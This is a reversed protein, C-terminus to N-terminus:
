RVGVTMRVKGIGVCDYEMVIMKDFPKQNNAKM